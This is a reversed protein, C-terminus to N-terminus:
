RRGVKWSRQRAQEMQRRIDPYLSKWLRGTGRRTGLCKDITNTTAGPGYLHLALAM